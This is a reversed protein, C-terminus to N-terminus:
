CRNEKIYIKLLYRDILSKRDDNIRKITNLGNREQFGWEKFIDESKVRSIFTRYLNCDDIYKKNIDMFANDPKRIFKYKWDNYANSCRQCLRYNEITAHVECSRGCKDCKIDGM